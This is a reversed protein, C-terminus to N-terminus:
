TSRQRGSQDGGKAPKRDRRVPARIKPQDRDGGVLSPGRFSAVLRRDARFRRVPQQSDHVPELWVGRHPQCIRLRPGQCDGRRSIHERIAANGGHLIRDLKELWQMHEEMSPRRVEESWLGYPVASLWLAWVSGYNISPDADM